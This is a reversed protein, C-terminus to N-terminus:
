KVCRGGPHHLRHALLPRDPGDWSLIGSAKLWSTWFYSGACHSMSGSRFSAHRKDYRNLIQGHVSCTRATSCTPKGNDYFRLAPSGFLLPVGHDRTLATMETRYDTEREFLFPTAAEPWIVLDAGKAVRDTLKRYRDMAERQHAADWKQSQDINAQVLAITLSRKLDLQRGPHLASQGYLLTLAM